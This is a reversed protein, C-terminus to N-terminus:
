RRRRRRWLRSALEPDREIVVGIVSDPLRSHAALIWRVRDRMAPDDDDVREAVAMLVRESLPVRRSLAYAAWLRTSSDLDALGVSLRPSVREDSPQLCDVLRIGEANTFLTGPLNESRIADRVPAHKAIECEVDVIESTLPRALLARAGAVAMAHFEDASLWEMHRAFHAVELKLASVDLDRALHLVEERAASADRMTALVAREDDDFEEPPHSAFFAEMTPLFALFDPRRMVGAATGLRDRVSVGEDHLRCVTDRDRAGPEDPGLGTAQVFSTRALASQLPANRETSRGVRALHAGYDGVARLYRELLPSTTAGRPAVSSFGYLRPVGPFARRLSERFSPGVPGYRMQVVREAEGQEFGHDILVRLYERPTREDQDKTALTNCALLFVERPARFIGACQPDCSARELEQLGLSFGRDGFFRGGFEGSLVVVDCRVGSRCAAALWDHQAPSAPGIQVTEFTPPRLHEDFAHVEDPTHFGVTCVTFPAASAPAVAALALVLLISRVALV